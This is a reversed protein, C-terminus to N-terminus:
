SRRTRNMRRRRRAKRAARRAANRVYSIVMFVLVVALIGLLTVILIGLIQMAQRNDDTDTGAGSLDKQQVAVSTAAILDVQAICRSGYWINLTGVAQGAAVPATLSSGVSADLRVQDYAAGAPLVAYIDSVTRVPVYNAGQQVPYQGVIMSSSVICTSSYQSFGYSLLRLMEAFHGFDVITIEDEAYTTDGGMVIGVYHTSGERATVMLCRGADSTYGTKGGEVREDVYIGGMAGYLMYNTTLLSRADSKNTAPIEYTEASYIQCFTENELAALTIRLLDRVTTYHNADQLGTANTFSSGTCGLELAKENMMAVFAEQSGAIHHAVTLAADVASNLMICYLLDQMSIQEGAILNATTSDWPTQEIVAYNVTVIESLDCNELAVLCTLIATLGTPYVRQDPNMAYVMTGTTADYLIAATADLELDVSNSLPMQADPTQSGQMASLDSTDLAAARLPLLLICFCLLISILQNKKM